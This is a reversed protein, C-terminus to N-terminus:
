PKFQGHEYPLTIKVLSRQHPAKSRASYRTSQEPLLLKAFVSEYVLGYSVQDVEPM